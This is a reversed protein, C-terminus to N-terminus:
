PLPQLNAKTSRVEKGEKGEKAQKGEKKTLKKRGQRCSVDSCKETEMWWIMDPTVM